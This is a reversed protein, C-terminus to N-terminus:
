GIRRRRYTAGFKPKAAAPATYKVFCVKYYPPETATYDTITPVTSGSNFGTSGSAAFTHIHTSLSAVIAGATRSESAGTGATIAHTHAAVPHVHGSATHGHTASGGTAGIGGITTPCRVYKDRLDLLSSGTGDCKAWNAPISALTGIWLGIIGTPFDVAGTMNQILAIATYPPINAGSGLNDASAQNSVVPATKTFTLTHTHGSTAVNAATGSITGATNFGAATTSTAKTPHNHDTTGGHSHNAVTHVHTDAGGSGGGDGLAVAGRMVRSRADPTGGTGDCLQWYAPGGASNDWCCVANSPVGLPTGDSKIFIVNLRAPENNDSSSDPAETTLTTAAPDVTSGNNIHTHTALPNTTNIDRNSSTSATGSDPITHTHAITHVHTTTTHAHALAGGTGGPDVGSTWGKPYKSDLATERSWNAPIGAHTGPWIVIINQAVAPM